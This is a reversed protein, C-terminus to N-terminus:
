KLKLLQDYIEKETLYADREEGFITSNFINDVKMWREYLGIIEEDNSSRISLSKLFQIYAKLSGPNRMMRRKEKKSLRSDALIMDFTQRAIKSRNWERKMKFYLNKQEWLNNEITYVAHRFEHGMIEALIDNLGRLGRFRHWDRLPDPSKPSLLYIYPILEGSKIWQQWRYKRWLLIGVKKNIYGRNIFIHGKGKEDINFKGTAISTRRYGKDITEEMEEIYFERPDSEIIQYLKEGTDTMRLIELAERLEEDVFVIKLGLPDVFNVPNNNFAQYLNMSDKYGMPDVSLFRGVIPDYYRSRFYYLNLESSYERGQFLITNGISSETIVNGSADWFTPMGYMDYTYREIINGNVDTIATVSGIADTHFYYSNFTGGDYVYM